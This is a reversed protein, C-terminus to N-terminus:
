EMSDDSQDKSESEDVLMRGGGLDEFTGDKKWVAEITVRFEAM